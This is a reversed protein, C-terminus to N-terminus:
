DQHKKQRRRMMGFSALGLGFLTVTAPEPIVPEREGPAETDIWDNGCEITWHLTLNAASPGFEGSPLLELFDNLGLSWEIAWNGHGNDSQIQEFRYGVNVGPIATGTGRVSFPDALASVQPDNGYGLNTSIGHVDDVDNIQYLQSSDASHTYDGDGLHLHDDGRTSTWTGNSLAFDYGNYSSADPSAGDVDMFVDGLFFGDSTGNVPDVSTTGMVQFETGTYRWSLFEIDYPEGGSPGPGFTPNTPVTDNGEAWVVGNTVGTETRPTDNDWNGYSGNTYVDGSLGWDGLISAQGAIPVLWLGMCALTTICRTAKM